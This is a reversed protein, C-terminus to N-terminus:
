KSYFNKNEIYDRFAYRFSSYLGNITYKSGWVSLHSSDMYIPYGDQTYNDCALDKCAVDFPNIFILSNKTIRNFHKKMELNFAYRSYAESIHRTKCQKYNLKFPTSVCDLPSVGEGFGSRPVDGVVIVRRDPFSAQLHGKLLELERSAFTAYAEMENEAFSISDNTDMNIYTLTRVVWTQAIVVPVNDEKLMKIIDLKKKSHVDKANEDIHYCYNLTNLRCNNKIFKFNINPFSNALGETLHRGHSDGVVWIHKPARPNTECIPGFEKSYQYPCNSGGAYKEVFGDYDTFESYLKQTEEGLRWAWGDNAWMNAAPIMLILCLLAVNFIFLENRRHMSSTHTKRFPTEIYRYMLFAILFSLGLIILRDFHNIVGLKVYKYFVILPWHILYLSYSILGIGVMIRSKLVVSSSASNGAYLIFATGLCPIIANYYPFIITEDYTLISYFILCLGTIFLIENYLKKSNIHPVWALVAGFIFEFGRFPTLYFITSKGDSFLSHLDKPSAEASISIGDYFVYNAILSASFIFLLIFIASFRTKNAIFLGIVLPWILYFQEEVSLSWTHLLPKVEVSLDFYDSDTWFYINSLSTLAHISSAGYSELHQPSFLLPAVITCLLLIFLFAPMLRRVRRVYFDLYNIKQTEDYERKLLCTILYGSIVFFIDVGVFGGPFYSYGLHVFIVSLVAVARLGDIDKRYSIHASM